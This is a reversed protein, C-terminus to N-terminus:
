DTLTAPSWGRAEVGNFDNGEGFTLQHTIWGELNM